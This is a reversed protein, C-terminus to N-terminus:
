KTKIYSFAFSLGTLGAVSLWPPLSAVAPPIIFTAPVRALRGNINNRVYKGANQAVWKKYRRKTIYHTLSSTYLGASSGSVLGSISSTTLGCGVFSGWCQACVVGAYSGIIPTATIFIATGTGAVLSAEVITYSIFDDALEKKELIYVYFYIPM